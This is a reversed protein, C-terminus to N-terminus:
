DCSKRVTIRGLRKAMNKASTIRSIARDAARMNGPNRRRIKVCRTGAAVFSGDRLFYDSKNPRYGSPCGIGGNTAMAAVEFGTAGGPLLRQVAGRVGPTKVVPQAVRGIGPRAPAFASASQVRGPVQFGQERTIPSVMPPPAQRGRGLKSALFGGGVSLATKVLGGGPLAGVLKSAAKGVWSFFGPDGQFKAAKIAMSM